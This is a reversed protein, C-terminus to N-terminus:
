RLINDFRFRDSTDVPWLICYDSKKEKKDNFFISTSERRIAVLWIGENDGEDNVICIIKIELCIHKVTLILRHRWSIQACRTRVYWLYTNNNLKVGNRRILLASQAYVLIHYQLRTEIVFFLSIPTYFYFIFCLKKNLFFFFLFFCRFCNIFQKKRRRNGWCIETNMVFLTMLLLSINM